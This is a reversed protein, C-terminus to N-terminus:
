ELKRKIDNVDRQILNVKKGIEESRIMLHQMTEWQRDSNKEMYKLTRELDVEDVKKALSKETKDCYKIIATRNDKVSEKTQAYLAGFLGVVVVALAPVVLKFLAHSVIKDMKTM